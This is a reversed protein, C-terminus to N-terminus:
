GYVERNLLEILQLNLKSAAFQEEVFIKGAESFRKRLEGDKLLKRIADSLSSVDREPVLFGRDGHKILEPIGSHYTGIVPVGLVMAEMLSVPVGEMDGNKATVSPLLMLDARSLVEIVKDHSQSGAFFVFDDLDLQRVMEKLEPMLPGSGVIHYEFVIGEQALLSLAEIAYCIGKKEVLRSISIIKPCAGQNTTPASTSKLNIDVGMRLVVCRNPDAGLEILRERWYNSVPLLLSKGKFLKDYYHAGRKEIVESIDYGHFFVLLKSSIVNLSKMADARLGNPGFHCVMADYRDGVDQYFPLSVVFKLINCGRLSPLRGLLCLFLLPSTVLYGILTKIFLLSLKRMSVGLYPEYVVKAENNVFLKDRSRAIVTVDFGSRVLNEVQDSVFTQSLCPYTNVIYAIKM